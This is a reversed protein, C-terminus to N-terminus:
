FKEGGVPSISPSIVKILPMSDPCFSRMAIKAVQPYDSM